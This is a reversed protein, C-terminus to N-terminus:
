FTGNELNKETQSTTPKNIIAEDMRQQTDVAQQTISPKKFIWAGVTDKFLCALISGGGAVLVSVFLAIM